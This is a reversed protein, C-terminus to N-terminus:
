GSIPSKGILSTVVSWTTSIRVGIQDALGSVAVRTRERSSSTIAYAFARSHNWPAFGAAQRPWM